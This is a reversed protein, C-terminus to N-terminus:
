YNKIKVNKKTEEIDYYLQAKYVLIEKRKQIHSIHKNHRTRKIMSKYYIKIYAIKLLTYNYNFDYQPLSFHYQQASITLTSILFIISIILKKM